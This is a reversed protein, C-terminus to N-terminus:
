RLHSAVVESDNVGAVDDLRIEEFAQQFAFADLGEQLILKEALHDGVSRRRATGPGHLNEYRIAIKILGALNNFVEHLVAPRLSM